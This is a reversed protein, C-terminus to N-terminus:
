ERVTIKIAARFHKYNACLIRLTANRIATERREEKGGRKRKSARERDNKNSNEMSKGTASCKANELPL